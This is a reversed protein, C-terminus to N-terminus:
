DSRTLWDKAQEVDDFLKPAEGLVRTIAQYLVMRIGTIGVLAHRKSALHKAIQSGGSKILQVVETSFTTGRLDTLGIVSEEPQQIILAVVANMETELGALDGGFNSYDIYLIKQGKHTIWRSKM